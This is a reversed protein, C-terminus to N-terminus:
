RPGADQGPPPKTADQPEDATPKGPASEGFSRPRASAPPSESEADEYPWAPARGEPPPLTKGATHEEVPDTRAEWSPVYDPNRVLIQGTRAADLALALV